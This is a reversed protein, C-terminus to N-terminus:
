PGIGRAALNGFRSRWLVLIERADLYIPLSNRFRFLPRHRRFENRSDIQFGGDVKGIGAKRRLVMEVTAGSKSLQGYGRMFM